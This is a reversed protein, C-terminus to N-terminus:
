KAVIGVLTVSVLAKFMVPVEDARYHENLPPQRKSTFALPREVNSM